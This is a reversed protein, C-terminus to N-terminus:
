TRARDVARVDRVIRRLIQEDVAAGGAKGSRRPLLCGARERYTSLWSSDTHVASFVDCGRWGSAPGGRVSAVTVLSDNPEDGYVAHVAFWIVGLAPSTLSLRRAQTPFYDGALRYTPVGRANPFAANFAKMSAADGLRDAAASGLAAIALDAADSGENPTGLQVIGVARCRSAGGRATEAFVRAILGGMSHGVLIVDRGRVHSAALQRDLRAAAERWDGSDSDIINSGDGSALGPHTEAVFVPYGAKELRRKVLKWDGGSPDQAASPMDSGLGGILVALPRAKDAHPAASVPPCAIGAVPLMVVAAVIARVLCRGSSHPKM